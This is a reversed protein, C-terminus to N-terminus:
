STFTDPQEFNSSNGSCKPLKCDKTRSRASSVAILVSGSVMPSRFFRSFNDRCPQRRIKEGLFHGGVLRPRGADKSSSSRPCQLKDSSM